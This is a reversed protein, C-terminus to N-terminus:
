MGKLLNEVDSKRLMGLEHRLCNAAGAAAGLNAIDQDEKQHIHGAIIGALLCDGSGISSYVKKM